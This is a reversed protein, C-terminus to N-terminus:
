LINQSQSQKMKWNTENIIKKTLKIGFQMRLQLKKIYKEEIKVHKMKWITGNKNIKM